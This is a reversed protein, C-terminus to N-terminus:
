LCTTCEIQSRLIALSTEDAAFPQAQRGSHQVARSAGPESMKTEESSPNSSELRLSADM